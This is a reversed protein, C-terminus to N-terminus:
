GEVLSNIENCGNAKLEEGAYYLERRAPFMLHYIDWIFHSLVM